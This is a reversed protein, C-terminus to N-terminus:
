VLVIDNTMTASPIFAMDRISGLKTISFPNVFGKPLISPQALLFDDTMTASPIFDM